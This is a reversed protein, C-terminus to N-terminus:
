VYSWLYCCLFHNEVESFCLLTRKFSAASDKENEFSDFTVDERNEPDFLESMDGKGYYEVESEKVVEVPNKAQNKFRRYEDTNDFSRYFSPDNEEDQDSDNVFMEDESSTSQNSEMEEAKEDSFVLKLDDDEVEAETLFFVM